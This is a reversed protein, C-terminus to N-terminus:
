GFAEWYIAWANPWWIEDEEVLTRFTYTNM